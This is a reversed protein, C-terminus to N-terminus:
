PVTGRTITGTTQLQASWSGADGVDTTAEYSTLWAEGSYRPLGTTAGQPDYQYSVSAGGTIGFLIGNMHADLVPDFKGQLSISGGALGTVSQKYTGGMVDISATDMEFPMSISSIYASLDQLSGANNDLRFVAKSGHRFAM